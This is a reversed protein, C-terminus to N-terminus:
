VLVLQQRGSSAHAQGGLQEGKATHIGRGDGEREAGPGEAQASTPVISDFAFFVSLAHNVDFVGFLAPGEL